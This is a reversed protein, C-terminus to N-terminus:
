ALQVSTFTSRGIEVHVDTSASDPTSASRRLARGAGPRVTRAGGGTFKISGAPTATCPQTV